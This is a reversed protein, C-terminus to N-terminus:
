AALPNIQVDYGLSQLRNVLRRTQAASARRDFHDAEHYPTGTRLM